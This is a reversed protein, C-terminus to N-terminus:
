FIHIKLTVKNANKWNNKKESQPDKSIFTFIYFIKNRKVLSSKQTNKKNKSFPFVFSLILDHPDVLLTKPRTSRSVFNWSVQYYKVLFKTLLKLTM